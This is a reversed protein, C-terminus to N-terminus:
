RRRFAARTPSKPIGRRSTANQIAIELVRPMQNNGSVLECYHSCEKFLTQPHTEQFYRTLPRPFHVPDQEWTGPGPPDFRVGTTLPNRTEARSNPLPWPHGALAFGLQQSILFAGVRYLSVSVM